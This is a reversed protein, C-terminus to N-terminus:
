VRSSADDHHKSEDLSGLRPTLHLTFRSGKKARGTQICCHEIFGLAELQSIVTFCHRQSLGAQRALTSVTMECDPKGIAHSNKYLVECVAMRGRRVAWGWRVKFEELSDGAASDRSAPLARQLQGRGGMSEAGNTPLSASENIVDLSHWVYQTFAALSTGEQNSLFEEVDFRARDDMNRLVGALLRVTRKALIDHRGAEVIRGAQESEVKNLWHRRAREAMEALMEVDNKDVV